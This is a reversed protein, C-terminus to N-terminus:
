AFSEQGTIQKNRRSQSQMVRFLRDADGELVVTVNQNNAIQELLKIIDSQSSNDAVSTTTIRPNINASELEAMASDVAGLNDMIGKAYGLDVFKGIEAFVKSPSEIGYADKVGQVLSGFLGSVNEKLSGWANKIGNWLGKVINVGVELFKGPLEKVIKLLDDALMRLRSPLAKMNDVIGNFFSKGSNVANTKLNEGFSQVHEMVANFLAMINAPLDRFFALFAGIAYGAWYAMQTPLQALWEGVASLINSMIEGVNSFFTNGYELMTSSISGLVTKVTEVFMPGSAIIAQVLTTVIQPIAQVLASIIQPMAAVLAMTLQIMGDILQPLNNLMGDIIAQTIIPLAEVLVEIIEPLADIIGTILQIIGEIFVPLYTTFQSIYAEIFQPIATALAQVISPFADIIGHVLQLAGDVLLPVNQVLADVISRILEPIRTVLVPLAKVLGEALGTILNVAGDVLLPINDILTDVIQLVVDVIAPILTPLMQSIGNALGVLIQLAGDALAPLAEVLGMVLQNIIQVAADIITPLNDLIGQGLAGLLQGGANMVEPLTGIIMNLADSIATGLSSVFGELGGESLGKSMDELAVKSFSLFESYVPMLEQGIITQLNSFAQGTQMAMSQTTGYRKEAEAQLANNEEYARNATDVASTLVDSALALSKITNTERIGKIGLNDLVATVNVGADVMDDLGGVFGQLAETPATKWATAFEESTMGATAAFLTLKENSPDIGEDVARGIKTMITSMATGGAEANIGVSSMATSLALIDNASFGAITGASALRTSMAVIDAETTAFHNGLDVIVSGIRGIDTAEVGAINGFKALSSAAEESSLNTTDGLMIMTETFKELGDVGEIGLQGAIEMTAAIDEKSSAMKTSADMIWDSLQGFEEETADVTKRVGTFASEFSTAASMSGQAFDVAAKGAAKLGSAILDAKVMSGTLSSGFGKASKEASNLGKDFDSRDLKLVGFLEFATMAM